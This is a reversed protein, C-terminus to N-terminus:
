SDITIPLLMKGSCVDDNGSTIKFLYNDAGDSCEVQIDLRDGPKVLKRFKIRSLGTMSLNGRGPKTILDAVMKLQAIGPLIPNNPFHGSFWSSNGETTVSATIETVAMKKMRDVFSYGLTDQCPLLFERSKKRRQRLALAWLPTCVYVMRASFICCTLQGRFYSESDIGPQYRAIHQCLYKNQM